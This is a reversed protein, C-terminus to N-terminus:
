RRERCAVDAANVAHGFKPQALPLALREDGARQPLLDEVERAAKRLGRRAVKAPVEQERQGVERRLEPGLQGVEHLLDKGAAGVIGAFLAFGAAGAAPKQKARDSLADTLAPSDGGPEAGAGRVPRYAGDTAASM